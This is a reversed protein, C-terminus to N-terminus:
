LQNYFFLNGLNCFVIKSNVNSEISLRASELYHYSKEFFSEPLRSAFSSICKYLPSSSDLSVITDGTTKMLFVLRLFSESYICFEKQCERGLDVINKNNELVSVLDRSLCGDLLSFLLPYYPSDVRINATSSPPALQMELCRSRITSIVKEPSHTILIFYSGPYPEEIIKLLKNAAETTMREPLYIIMFQKDAEYPRMNMKALIDKAETVSITGVKNEIGLASYLDAESFCPNSLFLERWVTLFTDSIPKKDAGSKSTVNVPFVFHLDPHVLKQIKKCSPCEGCSDNHKEGSCCLYQVLGLAIPLAGWGDSEVFMMAHPTRGGDVM